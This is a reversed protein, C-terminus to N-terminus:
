PRRADGSPQRNIWVVWPRPASGDQRIEVTYGQREISSALRGAAGRDAFAAAPILDAPLRDAQANSDGKQRLAQKKRAETAKRPPELIQRGVPPPNTTSAIAERATASPTQDAPSVAKRPGPAPETPRASDPGPLSRDGMVHADPMRPPMDPVGAVVAGPAGSGSGDPLMESHSPPGAPGPAGGPLVSAGPTPGGLTENPPAPAVLYPLGVFIFLFTPIFTAVAIAVGRLPRVDAEDEAFGPEDVELDQEEEDAPLAHQETIKDASLEEDDRLTLM